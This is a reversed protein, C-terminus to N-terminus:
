VTSYQDVESVILLYALSTTTNTSVKIHLTDVIQQPPQVPWTMDHQSPIGKRKCNHMVKALTDAQKLSRMIQKM